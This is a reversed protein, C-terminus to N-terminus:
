KTLVFAARGAMDNKITELTSKYLEEREGGIRLARKIAVLAEQNRGQDHLVQALNNWADGSEPHDITATRYEAEADHLNHRAYAANGLGIRAILDGPWKAVATEYVIRAAGPSVQELAVAAEVFRSEEASAPLQGPPLAVFAWRGSKAWSRDFDDLMMVLRRDTGSHLIIKNSPLDYGILVAYHWEPFFSFRLNQLVVVPHGASLEKLLAMPDSDLVYPLLGMRRTAALMEVQLTGERGPLYVMKRLEDPSVAKGDYAFVMALASPGCQYKEQPYFPVNQLEVRAPLNDHGAQYNAEPMSSCGSLLLLM